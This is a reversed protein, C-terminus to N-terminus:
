HFQHVRLDDCRFVCRVAAILIEDSFQVSLDIDTLTILLLIDNESMDNMLYWDIDEEPKRLLAQQMLVFLETLCDDGNEQAQSLLYSITNKTDM